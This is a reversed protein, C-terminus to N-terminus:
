PQLVELVITLGKEDVRKTMQKQLKGDPYFYSLETSGDPNRKIDGCGTLLFMSGLLKSM